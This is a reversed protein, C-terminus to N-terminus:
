KCFAVAEARARFDADEINPVIRQALKKAKAAIDGGIKILSEFFAVADGYCITGDAADILNEIRDMAARTAVEDGDQAAILGGLASASYITSLDSEEIARRVATCAWQRAAQNDRRSYLLFYACALATSASPYLTERQSLYVDAKELDENLPHEYLHALHQLIIQHDEPDNFSQLGTQLIEEAQAFNQDCMAQTARRIIDDVDTM